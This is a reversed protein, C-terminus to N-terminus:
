EALVFYSKTIRCLRGPHNSVLNCATSVLYSSGQKNDANLCCGSCAGPIGNIPRTVAAGMLAEPVGDKAEFMVTDGDASVIM